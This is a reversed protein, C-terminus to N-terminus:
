SVKAGCTNCFKKGETLPAGCQPCFKRVPAGTTSQPVSSPSPGPAPVTLLTPDSLFKGILDM